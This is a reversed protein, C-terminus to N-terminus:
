DIAGPILFVAKSRTTTKKRKRKIRHSCIAKSYPFFFYLKFVHVSSATHVLVIKPFSVTQPPNTRLSTASFLLIRNFDCM